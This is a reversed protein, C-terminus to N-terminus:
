ITLFKDSGYKLIKKDLKNLYRTRSIIDLDYLDITLLNTIPDSREYFNARELCKNSCLRLNTNPIRFSIYDYIPCINCINKHCIDCKTIINKATKGCMQCIGNQLNHDIKNFLNEVLNELNEIRRELELQKIIADM